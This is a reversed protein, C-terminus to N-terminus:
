LAEGFHVDASLLLDLVDQVFSVNQLSKRWFVKAAIYVIAQLILRMQVHYQLIERSSLQDLVNTLRNEHTFIVCSEVEGLNHQSDLAQMIIADNVPVELRLVNQDILISM